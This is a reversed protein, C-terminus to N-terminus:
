LELVLAELDLLRLYDKQQHVREMVQIFVTSQGSTQLCTVPQHSSTKLIGPRSQHLSPTVPVPLVSPMGSPSTVEPPPVARFTAMNISSRKLTGSQMKEPSLLM